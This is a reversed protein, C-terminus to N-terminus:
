PLNEFFSFGSLGFHLYDFLLVILGNKSFEIAFNHLGMDKTAGIGHAM